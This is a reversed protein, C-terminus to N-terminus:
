RCKDQTLSLVLGGSREGSDIYTLAWSFAFCVCGISVSMVLISWFGTTMMLIYPPPFLNLAIIIEWCKKKYIVGQNLWVFFIYKKRWNLITKAGKRDQLLCLFRCFEVGLPFIYNGLIGQETGNHGRVTETRLEQSIFLFFWFSFIYILPNNEAVNM